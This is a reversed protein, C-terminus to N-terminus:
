QYKDKIANRVDTLDDIMLQREITGQLKDMEEAYENYISCLNDVTKLCHIVTAHDYTYQWGIKELTLRGCQKRNICYLFYCVAQRIKVRDRKRSNSLSYCRPVDFFYEVIERVIFDLRLDAVAPIAMYSIDKASIRSIERERM